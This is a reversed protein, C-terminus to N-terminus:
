QFKQKIIEETKIYRNAVQHISNGLGNKQNEDRIFEKLDGNLISKIKGIISGLSKKKNKVPEVITDRNAVVDKKETIPQISINVWIENLPDTKAIFEDVQPSQPAKEPQVISNKQLELVLENNVKLHKRFRQPSALAHNLKKVVIKQDKKVFLSLTEKSKIHIKPHIVQSTKNSIKNIQTLQNQMSFYKWSVGVSFLLLAAAVYYKRKLYRPSGVKNESENLNQIIKDWVHPDPQSENKSLQNRWNEEMSNWPDKNSNRM